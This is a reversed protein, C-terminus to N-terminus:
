REFGCAPPVHFSLGHSPCCGTIVFTAALSRSDLTLGIVTHCRFRLHGGTRVAGRHEPSRPTGCSRHFSSYFVEICGAVAFGRAPGAPCARGTACRTKRYPQRPRRCRRLRLAVSASRAAPPRSNRAVPPSRPLHPATLTPSSAPHPSPGTPSGRDRRRSVRV